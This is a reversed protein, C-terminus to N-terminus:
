KGVFIGGRWCHQKSSDGDAHDSWLLSCVSGLVDRESDVASIGALM